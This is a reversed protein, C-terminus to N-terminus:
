KAAEAPKKLPHRPIFVRRGPVLAYPPKLRNAWVIDQWTVDFRNSLTVVTDDYEVVYPFMGAPVRRVLYGPLRMLALALAVAVILAAAFALLPGAPIVLFGISEVMSSHVGDNLVLLARVHGIFPADPWRVNLAATGEAPITADAIPLTVPPDAAYVNLVVLRGRVRADAPLANAVDFEFVRDAGDSRHTFTKLSFPTPAQASVSAAALAWFVLIAAIRSRM